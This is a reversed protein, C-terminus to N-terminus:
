KWGLTEYYQKVAPCQVHNPIVELARVRRDLELSVTGGQQLLVKSWVAQNVLTQLKGLTQIVNHVESPEPSEARQEGHEVLAYAIYQGVVM